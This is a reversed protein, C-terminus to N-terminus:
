IGSPSDSKNSLQVQLHCIANLAAGM